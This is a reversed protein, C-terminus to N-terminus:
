SCVTGWYDSINKAVEKLGDYTSPKIIYSNAGLHYSKRIDQESKSTSFMIIPIHKYKENSKVEDLVQWGNKIPMNIDLMIISRLSQAFVNDDDLFPKVEEGDHVNHITTFIGNEKFANKLLFIDDEDDDAVLILLNRM